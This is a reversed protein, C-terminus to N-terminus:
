ASTYIELLGDPLDLLITGEDEDIEVIIDENLPFLVDTFKYHVTAVFQQPYENVEIIEGLEGHTQDTAIYGKLDMYSFDDDSTDPMKDLPLYIKKRVLAQAKDIHDIDDFYFNGTNNTQLKYSETFFPVMKGSIEAFIVDLDLLEPEEYEFFLQLEGKLGKTKTIYGIYFAEEQTM